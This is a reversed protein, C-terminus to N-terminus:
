SQSLLVKHCILVDAFLTLIGIIAKQRTPALVDGSVISIQQWYSRPFLIRHIQIYAFVIRYFVTSWFKTQSIDFMTESKLISVSYYINLIFAGRMQM